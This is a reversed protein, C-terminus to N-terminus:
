SSIVTKQTNKTEIKPQMELRTIMFIDKLGQSGIASPPLLADDRFLKFHIHILWTLMM